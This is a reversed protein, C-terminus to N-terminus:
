TTPPVKGANQASSAQMLCVGSWPWWRTRLSEPIAAALRLSPSLRGLRAATKLMSYVAVSRWGCPQFFAPGEKPGFKYASGAQALQRGWLKRFRRLLGPSVLDFGWLTSAHSSRIDQALQFVDSPALFVLLGETIVLVRTAQRTLRDILDCRAQRDSLDLTVRELACGPSVKGLIQDKQDLLEPCDVEVWRLSPPLNMRYPRADLGAALNVVLDVGAAIQDLIIRDFLYTRTVWGWANRTGSPMGAAIEEGRAGALSHAYPDRFLADARLSEQARYVAAWRATDALDRILPEPATMM